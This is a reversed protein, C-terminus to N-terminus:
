LFIKFNWRDYRICVTNEYYYWGKIFMWYILCFIISLGLSTLASWPQKKVVLSGIVGCITGIIISIILNDTM